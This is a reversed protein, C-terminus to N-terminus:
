KKVKSLNEFEDNRDLSRIKYFYTETNKHKKLDEILAPLDNKIVGYVNMLEKNWDNIIANKPQLHFLVAGGGFFPEILEMKKINKPLNEVISKMLQRKGGVWKVVPSILKNKVM